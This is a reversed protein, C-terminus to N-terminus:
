IILPPTAQTDHHVRTCPSFTTLSAHLHEKNWFVHTDVVLLLEKRETVSRWKVKFWGKRM